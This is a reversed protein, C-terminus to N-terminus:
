VGSEVTGEMLIGSGGSGRKGVMKREKRSPMDGRKGPMVNGPHVVNFLTSGILMLLSDLCYQYVGHRPIASNLGGAYEVLRFIIRAGILFVAIYMVYLLLFPKNGEAGSKTISLPKSKSTRTNHGMKQYLHVAFFLFVCIFLLIDLVVFLKGLRWAMLGLLKGDETFNWVMRGLVMYVFANTWIPAILILVFWGAYLGLSAPHLISLVRLLYAAAQLLGSIVLIWCYPKRYRIAQFAHALTAITFAALLIYSAPLSPCFDWLTSPTTLAKCQQSM